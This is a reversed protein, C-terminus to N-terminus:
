PITLCTITISAPPLNDTCSLSYANSLALACIGCSAHWNNPNDHRSLCFAIAVGLNAAGPDGCEPYSSAIYEGIPCTAGGSILVDNKSNCFCYRGDGVSATLSNGPPCTVTYLFPFAIPPPLPIVDQAHIVAVASVLFVLCVCSVVITSKRM